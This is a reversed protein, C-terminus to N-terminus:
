QYDSDDQLDKKLNFFLMCECEALEITHEQLIQTWFDEKM